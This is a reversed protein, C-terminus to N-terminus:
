FDKSFRVGYMRPPGYNAWAAGFGSSSDIAGTKYLQNGANTVYATVQIDKAMNTWTARLNVLAYADQFSAGNSFASIDAPDFYVSSQYSADAGVRLTGGYAPFTYYVSGNM